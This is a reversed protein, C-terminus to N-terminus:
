STTAAAAHRGHVHRRGRLRGARPDRRHRRADRRRRVGRVADQFIRHLRPRTIGNMGPFRDGLLPPAPVAGLVNGESDDSARGRSRSGRSSRGNASASSTSRASRTGPSSSGSATSTGSRTSSSSTSTSARTGCPSRPPCGASGAASSSSAISAGDTSSGRRPRRRRRRRPRSSWRRSRSSCRTRCARPEQLLRELGAAARVAGDGLRARLQPLRRRQDRDADRGARARLPLGARGHRAQRPRVRDGRRRQAPRGRRAPAGRALRRLVRRPQRSGPRGLSGVRSGPRPQARVRDDDRVRRLGPREPIM